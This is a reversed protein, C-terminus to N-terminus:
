NEDFFEINLNSINVEKHGDADCFKLDLSTCPKSPRKVDLHIRKIEM